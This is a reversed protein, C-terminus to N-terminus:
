KAEIKRVDLTGYESLYVEFWGKTKNHLREGVSLKGGSLLNTISELEKGSSAILWRFTQNALVDAGMPEQPQEQQATEAQDEHLDAGPDHAAGNGNTKNKELYRRNSAKRMCGKSCYRSNERPPDFLMGCEQCRAANRTWEQTEEFTPIEQPPAPRAPTEALSKELNSYAAAIADEAARLEPTTQFLCEVATAVLPETTTIELCQEIQINGALFERLAAAMRSGRDDCAVHYVYTAL